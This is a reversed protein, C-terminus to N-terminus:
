RRRAPPPRWGRVLILKAWNPLDDPGTHTVYPARRRGSTRGFCEARVPLSRDATTKAAWQHQRGVGRVGTVGQESRAMSQGFQLPGVTKFPVWTWQPRDLDSVIEQAWWM